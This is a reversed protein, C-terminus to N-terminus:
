VMFSFVLEDGLGFSVSSEMPDNSFVEVKDQSRWHHGSKGSGCFKSGNYFLCFVRNDEEFLEGFKCLDEGLFGSVMNGWGPRIVM